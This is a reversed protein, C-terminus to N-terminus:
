APSGAFEDLIKIGASAGIRDAGALIMAKADEFNRIGGSAKVKLTDGVVTKMLKIDEVTAGGSGFGTSTKVFAAGARMACECAMRKEEDELYCTEIIVKVTRGPVAEVVGRIDQEVKELNGAKLAGINIVMDIEEAGDRVAQAAEAAKIGSTHAGLPFGVVSCTKVTSGKLQRAVLAVHVPNVCVSAFGYEVAESCIRRIDAETATPKLNTHDIFSALIPKTLEM